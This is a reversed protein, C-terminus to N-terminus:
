AFLRRSYAMLFVILAYLSLARFVLRGFYLRMAMMRAEYRDMQLIAIRMRRWRRVMLVYITAAVVAAVLFRLAMEYGRGCPIYSGAWSIVWGLPVPAGGAVHLAPYALARGGSRGM